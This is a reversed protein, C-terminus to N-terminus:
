GGRSNLAVGILFVAEAVVVAVLAVTRASFTTLMLLLAKLDVMPGFVLFSVLSGDTFIGAYALAVVPNLAPASLPFVTAAAVPVGPTILRGAV